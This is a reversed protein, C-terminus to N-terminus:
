QAGTMDEGEGEGEGGGRDEEEDEDEDEDEEEEGDFAGRKEHLGSSCSSSTCHAWL